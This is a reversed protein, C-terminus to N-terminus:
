AIEAPLLALLPQGYEVATADAVLVELVKGARDATVPIMLKMAEIIGVQQGASVDDGVAAFPPAGPEPAHYFVGVTSAAIKEVGGDDVGGDDIVAPAPPGAPAAAGGAPEDWDIEISADGSTIRVRSPPHATATALAVAHERLASLVQEAPASAPTTM